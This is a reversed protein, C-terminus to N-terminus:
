IEFLEVKWNKLSTAGDFQKRNQYAKTYRCKVLLSLISQDHLHYVFGNHNPLVSPRDNLLEYHSMGHEWQEIFGVAGPTKRIVLLGAAYQWRDDKSQDQNTGGCYYEYVDRKTYNQDKYDVSYLALSSNTNIMRQFLDPLWQTHDHLDADAYVVFDGLKLQYLQHLILPAKWFWYGGGKPKLSESRLFELHPKWRSESTIFDPYDWYTHIQSPHYGNALLLTRQNEVEQKFKYSRGFKATVYDVHCPLENWEVLRNWFFRYGEEDRKEYQRPLISLEDLLVSNNGDKTCATMLLERLSAVARISDAVMHSTSHTSSTNGVMSLCSSEFLVELDEFSLMSLQGSLKHCKLKDIRQRKGKSVTNCDIQQPTDGAFYSLFRKTTNATTTTTTQYKPQEHIIIRSELYDYFYPPYIMTRGNPIWLIIRNSYDIGSSTSTTEVYESEKLYLLWTRISTESPWFKYRVTCNRNEQVSSTQQSLQDFRQDLDCIHQFSHDHQDYRRHNKTNSTTFTPNSKSLYTDLIVNQEESSSAIGIWLIFTANNNSKSLQQQLPIALEKQHHQQRNQTTAIGSRQHPVYDILLHAGNSTNNNNNRISSSKTNNMWAGFFSDLGISMLAAGVFCSRLVVTWKRKRGRRRTTLGFDVANKDHFM